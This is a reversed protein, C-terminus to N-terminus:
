FQYDKIPLFAAAHSWYEFIQRDKNLLTNLHKPQYDPIRSWLTHHHARQIVSIADIQVYGLHEIAKLVAKKGRGFKPKASLLGQHSLALKRAEHYSICIM